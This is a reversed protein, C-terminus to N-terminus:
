QRQVMLELQWNAYRGNYKQTFISETANKEWKNKTKTRRCYKQHILEIIRRSNTPCKVHRLKNKNAKDNARETTGNSEKPTTPFDGSQSVDFHRYRFAVIFKTSFFIVCEFDFNEVIKFM